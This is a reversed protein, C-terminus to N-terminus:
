FYIYVSEKLLWGISCLLKDQLCNEVLISVFSGSLEQKQLCRIFDNKTPFTKIKLLNEIHSHIQDSRQTLFLIECLFMKTTFTKSSMPNLRSHHFEDLFVPFTQFAKLELKSRQYKQLRKVQLLPCYRMQFTQNIDTQLNFALAM